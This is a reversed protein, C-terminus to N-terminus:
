IVAIFIDYETVRNELGLSEIYCRSITIYIDGSEGFVYLLMM